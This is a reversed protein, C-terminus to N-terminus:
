HGVSQPSSATERAYEWFTTRSMGCRRAAETLTIKRSLFLEKEESFNEPLATRPRGFKVGQMRAAAIGETQRTMIFNRETEAVYSLIALVLDSILTGLLNRSSRTDLIPMDLVVIHARKEQTIIKWQQMIEKYNRGLRDLSTVFLVSESDLLEMVKKWNKREFDKGSQKDLFINENQIGAEALRMKQRAENQERTSVRVYGYLTKM